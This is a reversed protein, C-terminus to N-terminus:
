EKSWDQFDSETNFKEIPAKFKEVLTRNLPSFQTKKMAGFSIQVPHFYLNPFYNYGINRDPLTKLTQQNSVTSISPKPVNTHNCNFIKM